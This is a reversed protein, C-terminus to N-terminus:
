IKARTICTKVYHRKRRHDCEIEDGDRNFGSHDELYEGCLNCIQIKKDCVDCLYEATRMANATVM